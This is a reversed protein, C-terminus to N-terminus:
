TEAIENAMTKSNQVSFRLYNVIPFYSSNASGVVWIKLKRLEDLSVEANDHSSNENNFYICCGRKRIAPSQRGYALVIGEFTSKEGDVKVEIADSLIAIDEVRAKAIKLRGSKIHEFLKTANELPIASVYRSVLARTRRQIKERIERDVLSLIANAQDILDAIYKEWTNSGNEASEIEHQLLLDVKTADGVRFCRDRKITKNIRSIFSLATVNEQSPFSFPQKDLKQLATRVSPLLGSSSFLTANGGSDCITIAADVASLKSGLIAMNRRSRTYDQLASSPYPRQILATEESPWGEPLTRPNSGVCIVAADFLTAHSNKGISFILSNGAVRISDVRKKLHIIKLKSANAICWLYKQRAYQAVLYRPVFMEQSIAWGCSSLYNQFDRPDDSDLSNVIISTNCLHKHSSANFGVGFGVANEDFIIVNASVNKRILQLLAAVASPGGGIIGITKL